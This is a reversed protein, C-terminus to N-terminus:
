VDRKRFVAFASALLAATSGAMVGLGAWPSLLEPDPRTVFISAGAETLWYKTLLDPLPQPFV